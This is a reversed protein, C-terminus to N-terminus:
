QTIPTVVVPPGSVFRYHNIVMEVLFRTYNVGELMPMAGFPIFYEKKKLIETIEAFHKNTFKVGFENRMYELIENILLPDFGKLYRVIPDYMAFWNSGFNGAKRVIQAKGKRKHTPIEIHWVESQYEGHGFGGVILGLSPRENEPIDKFKKQKVSELIPIVHTRYRNWFFKRVEEVVTSLANRKNVM